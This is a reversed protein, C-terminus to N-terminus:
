ETVEEYVSTLYGSKESNFYLGNFVIFDGIPIETERFLSGSTATIIVRKSSGGIYNTQVVRVEIDGGPNKSRIWAFINEENESTCEMAEVEHIDTKRFKRVGFNNM